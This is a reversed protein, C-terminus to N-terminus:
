SLYGLLVMNKYFNFLLCLFILNSCLIECLLIDNQFMHIYLSLFVVSKLCSEVSFATILLAIEMHMWVMWLWKLYANRIAVHQPDFGDTGCEGFIFCQAISFCLQRSLPYSSFMKFSSISLTSFISRFSKNLFFYFFM